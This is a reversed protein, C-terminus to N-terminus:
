IDIVMEIPAHDSGFIDTRIVCSKVLPLLKKSILFYDIRWGRNEKRKNGRNSWWTYAREQTPNLERFVDVFGIDLLANFGDREDSLFGHPNKENRLNEPYVDIYDRAVNFDGCIIVPKHNQLEDLFERFAADWELRYYWRELEGQSNPVYVNVFYFDPYSLVILRGETDLEKVGLSHNISFPKEKFLCATGSYGNRAACNWDARYGFAEYDGIATPKNIKTEQLAIIDADSLLVYEDLGKELCARLGNVNWTIFKL